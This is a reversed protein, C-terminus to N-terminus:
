PNVGTIIALHLMVHEREVQLKVGNELLSFWWFINMKSHVLISLRCAVHGPITSIISRKRLHQESKRSKM